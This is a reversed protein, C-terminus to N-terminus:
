VVVESKCFPCQKKNKLWPVICDEHFCHKCPIVLVKEKDKFNNQCIICLDNYKKKDFYDRKLKKIQDDNLGNNVNGIREELALLEEYSMNDVNPYDNERQLHSNLIMSMIYNEFIERAQQRRRRINENLQNHTRRQEIRRKISDIRSQLNSNLTQFNTIQNELASIEKDQIEIEKKIKIEDKKLENQKNQEQNIKNKIEAIKETLSSIIQNDNELEKKYNYDISEISIKTKTSNLLPNKNPSEIRKEKLNQQKKNWNSSIQYSKRENKKDKAIVTEKIYSTKRKSTSM